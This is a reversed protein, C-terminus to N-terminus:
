ELLEITLGKWKVKRPKKPEEFLCQLATYDPQQKERLKQQERREHEKFIERWKRDEQRWEEDSVLAKIVALREAATLGPAQLVLKLKEYFKM